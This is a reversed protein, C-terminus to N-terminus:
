EACHGPGIIGNNYDDLTKVLPDTVAPDLYGDGVPPVMLSGIMADAGAIAAAAASGAAGNAINLKAAILQHALAVLGNGGVPQNLIGLLQTKDYTVTGLMLSEVPWEDPHNKWYGQTLTCGNACPAYCFDVRADPKPSLAWDGAPDTGTGTHTYSGGAYPNNETSVALRYNTNAGTGGSSVVVAYKQGPVLSPPASFHVDFGAFASGIGAAAIAGAANPVAVAPMGSVTDVSYIAVTVDGYIHNPPNEPRQKRIYVTVGLLKLCDGTGPATFIQAARLTGKIPAGDDVTGTTFTSEAVTTGDPCAAAAPLAAVIWALAFLLLALLRSLDPATSRKM